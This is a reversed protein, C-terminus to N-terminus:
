GNISLVIVINNCFYIKGDRNRVMWMKDNVKTKFLFNGNKSDHEYVANEGDDYKILNYSGLQENWSAAGGSSLISIKRPCNKGTSM